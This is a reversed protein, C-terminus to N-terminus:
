GHSVRCAHVRVCPGGNALGRLSLSQDPENPRQHPAALLSPAPVDDTRFLGIRWARHPLLPCLGRGVPSDEMRTGCPEHLGAREVLLLIVPPRAYFVRERLANTATAGAGARVRERSVCWASVFSSPQQRRAM